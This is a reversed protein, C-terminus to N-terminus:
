GLQGTVVLVIFLAGVLVAMGITHLTLVTPMAWITASEGLWVAFKTSELWSLM